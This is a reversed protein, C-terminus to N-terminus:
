GLILMPGNQDGTSVFKSPARRQAEIRERESRSRAGPRGGIPEFPSQRGPGPSNRGPGPSSRGGENTWPANPPSRESPAPSSRGGNSNWPAPPARTEVPTFRENQRNYEDQRSEARAYGNQQQPPPSRQQQPYNRSQQIQQPHPQTFNQRDPPPANARIPGGPGYNKQRPQQQQAPPRQGQAQGYGRQQPPPRSQQPPPQSQNYGDDYGGYGQNPGYGRDYYQQQPNIWQQDDSYGQNYQDYGGQNHYSSDQGHSYQQDYAQTQPAAPRQNQRGYYARGPAEYNNYQDYAM